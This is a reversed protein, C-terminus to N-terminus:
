YEMKTLLLHGRVDNRWQCNSWDFAPPTTQGVGVQDRSLLFEFGNNLVRIPTPAHSPYFTLCLSTTSFSFWNRM